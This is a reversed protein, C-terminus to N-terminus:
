VNRSARQRVISYGFRYLYDRSGFFFHGCCDHTCSCGYGDWDSDDRLEEESVEGPFIWFRTTSEGCNYDWVDFVRLPAIGFEDAAAEIARQVKVCAPCVDPEGDPMQTWGLHDVAFVVFGADPGSVKREAGCGCRLDLFKMCKGEAALADMADILVENM